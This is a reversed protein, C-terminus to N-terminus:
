SLESSTAKEIIKIDRDTGVDKDINNYLIHITGSSTPFNRWSFYQMILEWEKVQAYKLIYHQSWGDLVPINSKSQMLNQTHSLLAIDDTFNLYAARNFYISNWKQNYNFTM